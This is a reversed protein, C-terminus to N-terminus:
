EVEYTQVVKKAKPAVIKGKIIFIASDYRRRDGFYGETIEPLTIFIETNGYHATGEEGPEPAIRKLLEEKSVEDIDIGDEGSYVIYYKEDEKMNEGRGHNNMTGTGFVKEM